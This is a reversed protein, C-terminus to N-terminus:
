ITASVLQGAGTSMTESIRDFCMTMSQLKRQKRHCPQLPTAAADLRALNCPNVVLLEGNAFIFVELM